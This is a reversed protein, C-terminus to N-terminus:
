HGAQILAYDLEWAIQRVSAWNGSEPTVARGGRSHVVREPLPDDILERYAANTVTGDVHAGGEQSRVVFILGRRTLPRKGTHTVPEEWWASFRMSRSWPPPPDGGKCIPVFVTPKDASMRAFTLPPGFPVFSDEIGERPQARMSSTMPLKPLIGLQGLLSKTRGTGDHVLIYIYTALRKAERVQGQDYLAASSRLFHLQDRLETELEIQSKIHAM